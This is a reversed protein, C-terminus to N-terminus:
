YRSTIDLFVSLLKDILKAYNEMWENTARGLSQKSAVRSLAVKLFGKGLGCLNDYKTEREGGPNEEQEQGKTKDVDWNKEAKNKNIEKKVEYKKHM